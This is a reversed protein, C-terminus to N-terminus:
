SGVEESADRRARTLEAAALRAFHILFLRIRSWNAALIQIEGGGPVNGQATPTALAKRWLEPWVDRWPAGSQLNALSALQEALNQVQGVSRAVEARHRLQQWQGRSPWTRPDPPATGANYRMQTFADFAHALVRERASPPPANAPAATPSIPALTHAPHNLAFRGFGEETREGLGRGAAELSHLAQFLEPPASEIRYASGRKLALAPTRHTGAATNFGHVVRTEEFSKGEPIRGGPKSVGALEALTAVDMTTHFGLDPARAILDSRLTLTFTTPAPNPNTPQAPASDPLWAVKVVEVPRGGRGVRLWHPNAGRFTAAVANFASAAAQTNFRIEALFFQEEVLATEAFLDGPGELARPDTDGAPRRSDFAPRGARHSPTRNRMLVMTKPRVLRYTNGDTSFLLDPTKVRKYKGGAFRQRESLNLADRDRGSLPWADSPPTTGAWWPLDGNGAGAGPDETAKIREASLPLPLVDVKALDTPNEPVFMGNGFAVAAPDALQTIAAGSAGLRGLATLWAGRLTPGPLYTESPLLNGPFGSLPISIPEVLRLLLRLRGPNPQPIPFPQAQPQAAPAPGDVPPTIRVRGFGRSKRGGVHTLRKLCLVILRHDDADGVFRLEAKATLGAAALEITRLTGDLPRRSRNERATSVADLFPSGGSNKLAPGPEFHWSTAVLAGRATTSGEAGLLRRIRAPTALAHGLSHLEDAADRLLGHVTTAWAVPRGRRDRAHRDDTQSLWGVGQGVHSDEELEVHFTLRHETNM